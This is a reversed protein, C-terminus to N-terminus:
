QASELNRSGSKPNLFGSITVGGGAFGAVRVKIRAYVGDDFRVFYWRETSERWSPRPLTAPMTVSESAAYGAEPAAFAFEDDQPLIGALVPELQFRWDFTGTATMSKEDIWVRVIIERQTTENRPTINARVPLGDAKPRFRVEKLPKLPLLEGPKRLVFVVPNAKDPRHQNNAGVDAYQFGRHSGLKDWPPSFNVLQYGTQSVHVDLAAGAGHISFFGASDATTSHKTGRGSMNDNTSYDVVAMPVPDGFQDIVKGYFTIPTSLFARWELRAKVDSVSRALVGGVPEPISEALSKPPEQDAIPHRRSEASRRHCCYAVVLVTCICAAWSTARHRKM